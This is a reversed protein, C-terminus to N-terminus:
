RQRLAAEVLESLKKQEEDGNGLVRGVVKGDKDLVFTTPIVTARFDDKMAKETTFVIPYDIQFAKAFTTNLTIEADRGLGSVTKGGHPPKADGQFDMGRGFFRTAGVLRVQDERGELLKRLEPIGSRCPPCWTAFFDLVVVKGRLDALRFAAEANLAHEVPLDPALEGIRLASAAPTADPTKSAAPPPAAPAVVTPAPGVVDRGAGAVSVGGDAVPAYLLALFQDKGADDTGSRQMGRVLALRFAAADALKPVLFTAQRAVTPLDPFLAAAREAWRHVREVDVTARNCEERLAVLYLRGAMTAHEPNGIREHKGFFEDLVEAGARAERRFYCGLARAYGLPGLDQGEHRQLFEALQQKQADSIPTGPPRQFMADLERAAVALDVQAPITTAIASAAALWALSALSTLPSPVTRSTPRM